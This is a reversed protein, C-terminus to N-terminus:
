DGLEMCPSMHISEMFIQTRGVEVGDVDTAVLQFQVWSDRYHNHGRIEIAEMVYSFTGDRHNHMADGTTWPTYDDKKASKVRVFIVVSQVEDEDEVRAVITVKNHKCIGWYVKNPSVTVSLFGVGPSPSSLVFPTSVLVTFGTATVNGIYVPVTPFTPTPQDPDLTPFRV